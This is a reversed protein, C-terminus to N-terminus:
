NRPWCQAVTGSGSVARAGQNTLTYDGCRTDSAQPGPSKRTAKITYTTATTDPSGLISLTYYGQPSSTSMLVDTASNNTALTATAFTNTEGYYQELRNALDTLAIIADARRSKAVQERFSPLAITAIIMAIAVTIMLEFITYGAQGQHQAATPVRHSPIPINM